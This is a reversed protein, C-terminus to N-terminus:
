RTSASGSGEKEPTDSGAAWVASRPGPILGAAGVAAGQISRHRRSIEDTTDPKNM